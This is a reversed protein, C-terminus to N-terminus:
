WTIRTSAANIVDAQCRYSSSGIKKKITVYRDDIYGVGMYRVKVWVGEVGHIHRVKHIAGYGYVQRQTETLQFLYSLILYIYRGVCRINYYRM